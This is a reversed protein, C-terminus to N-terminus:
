QAYTRLGPSDAAWHEVISDRDEPTDWRVLATTPGTFQVYPGVDITITEGRQRLSPNAGDRGSSISPTLFVTVFALLLSLRIFINKANRYKFCRYMIM